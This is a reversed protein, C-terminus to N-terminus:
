IIRTIPAFSNNTLSIFCFRDEYTFFQMARRSLSIDAGPNRVLYVTELANLGSYVWCLQTRKQDYGRSVPLIVETVTDLGQYEDDSMAVLSRIRMAEEYDSHTALSQNSILLAYVISLWIFTKM